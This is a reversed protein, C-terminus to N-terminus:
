IISVVGVINCAPNGLHELNTKEAKIWSSIVHIVMDALKIPDDYLEACHSSRKVIRSIDTYNECRNVHGFKVWISASLSKLLFLKLVLSLSSDFCRLYLDRCRDLAAVYHQSIYPLTLSLLPLHKRFRRFVFLLSSRFFSSEVTTLFIGTRIFFSFCVPSFVFFLFCFFCPSVDMARVPCYEFRFTSLIINFM